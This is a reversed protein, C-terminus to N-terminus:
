YEESFKVVVVDGMWQVSGEYPWSPMQRGFEKALEYEEPLVAEYPIGLSKLFGCGRESVGVPGAYDWEFISYGITEWRTDVSKPANPHYQGLMAIRTEPHVADIEHLEDALEYALRKDGEYTWAASLMAKGTINVQNVSFILLAGLLLPQVFAGIGGKERIKGDFMYMLSAGFFALAVPLAFQTRMLVGGGQYFALFFPSLFLCFSAAGYLWYERRREKVWGWLLRLAFIAGFLLYFGSYFEGQGLLVQKMYSKIYGLCNQVSNTSWYLQGELYNGEFNWGQTFGIVAKGVLNYFIYGVLFAGAEMLAVKFYFGKPMDRHFEFYVLYLSLALAMYFPVLAQYGGFGFVMLLLGAFLWGYRGKKQKGDQGAFSFSGVCFAAMITAAMCVAVEFGQMTFVFQQAFCPHSLFLAPFVLCFGKLKEAQGSFRSFAYACLIGCFTFVVIMGLSQVVPDFNRMGFLNKLWVLSFRQITYWSDLLKDPAYMNMEMDIGVRLSVLNVGYGLLVAAASVATVLPNSKFFALFERATRKGEKM